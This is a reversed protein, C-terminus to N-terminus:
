MRFINTFIKTTKKEVQYLCIYWTAKPIIRIVPRESSVFDQTIFIDSKFILWWKWMLSVLIVEDTKESFLFLEISVINNAFSIKDSSEYYKENKMQIYKPKSNSRSGHQKTSHRNKKKANLIEFVFPKWLRM